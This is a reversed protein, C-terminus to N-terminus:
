PDHDLRHDRDPAEFATSLVIGVLASTIGDYNKKMQHKIVM